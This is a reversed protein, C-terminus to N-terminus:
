LSGNRAPPVPSLGIMATKADAYKSMYLIVAGDVWNVSRDSYQAGYANQVQEIADKSPTGFKAIFLPAVLDFYPPDFSLTISNVLKIKGNVNCSVSYRMNTPGVVTMGNCFQNKVCFIAPDGFAEKIKAPDFADGIKMGKLDLANASFSMLVLAAAFAITKLNAM